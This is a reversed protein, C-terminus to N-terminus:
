RPTWARHQEVSSTTTDIALYEHFLGARCGLVSTTSLGTWENSYRVADTRGM